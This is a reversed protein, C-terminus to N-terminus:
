KKPDILVRFQSSGCLVQHLVKSLDLDFDLDVALYHLESPEALLVSPDWSSARIVHSNNEAEHWRGPAALSIDDM